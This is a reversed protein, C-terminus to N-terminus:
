FGFFLMAFLFKPLFDVPIRLYKLPKYHLFKCICLLFFDRVKMKLHGMRGEWTRWNQAALAITVNAKNNQLIFGIAFSKAGSKGYTIGGCVVYPRNRKFASELGVGYSRGYSLGSPEKRRPKSYKRFKELSKWVRGWGIGRKM